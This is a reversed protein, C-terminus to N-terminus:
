LECVQHTNKDDVYRQRQEVYINQCITSTTNKSCITRINKKYQVQYLDNPFDIYIAQKCFGPYRSRQM